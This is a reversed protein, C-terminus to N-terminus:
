NIWTTGNLCAGVFNTSSSNDYILNGVTNYQAMVGVTVTNNVASLIRIGYSQYNAVGSEYNGTSGGTISIGWSNDIIVGSDGVAAHDNLSIENDTLTENACGYLSIGHLGNSRIINNSVIDHNCDDFKIGVGATGTYSAGNWGGMYLKNGSITETGSSAARICDGENAGIDNNVIWDDCTMYLYIGHGENEVIKCNEVWNNGSVGLGQIMLGDDAFKRIDNNKYRCLYSDYQYIGKEGIGAGNLILNSVEVDHGTVNILNVATSSYLTVRGIATLVFYDEDILITDSFIYEGDFFAVTSNPQVCSNVITAADTGSYAIVGNQDKAYYASGVKFITYSPAGPYVGGEITFTNSAQAWVYIIPTAVLLTAIITTLLIATLQKRTLNTVM